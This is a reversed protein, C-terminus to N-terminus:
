QATRVQDKFIIWTLKRRAYRTRDSAVGNSIQQACLPVPVITRSEGTPAARQGDDAQQQLGDCEVCFYKYKKIKQLLNFLLQRLPWYQQSTSVNQFRDYLYASHTGYTCWDLKPPTHLECHCVLPQMMGRHPTSVGRASRDINREGKLVECSRRQVPIVL